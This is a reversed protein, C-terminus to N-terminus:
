FQRLAEKLNRDGTQRAQWFSSSRTKIQLPDAFLSVGVGFPLFITFYFFTLAVRATWDMLFQGFAKWGEWFDPILTVGIIIYLLSLGAITTQTYIAETPLSVEGGNMLRFFNFVGRLSNIISLIALLVTGFLPNHHPWRGELFALIIVLVGVFILFGIGGVLSFNIIALATLVIGFLIAIYKM